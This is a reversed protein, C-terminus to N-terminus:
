FLLLLLLLMLLLLIVQLQQRYLSQKERYNCQTTVMFAHVQNLSEQLQQWELGEAWELTSRTQSQCATLM